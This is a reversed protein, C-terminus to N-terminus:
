AADDREAFAAELRDYSAAVLRDHEDMQEGYWRRYAAKLDGDPGIRLRMGALLLKESIDLLSLWERGCGRVPKIVTKTGSDRNPVAAILETRTLLPTDGLASTPTPQMAANEM